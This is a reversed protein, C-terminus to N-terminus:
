PRMTLPQWFPMVAMASAMVRSTGALSSMACSAKRLAQFWRGRSRLWDLRALGDLSTDGSLGSNIMEIKSDPFRQRLLEQWFSPFGRRVAYGATISDGFCVITADAGDELDRRTREVWRRGGEGGTGDGAHEGNM